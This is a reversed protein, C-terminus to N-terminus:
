GPQATGHRACLAMGARAQHEVAVPTHFVGSVGVARDHTALAEHLAHISGALHVVVGVHFREEMGQLALVDMALPEVGILLQPLSKSSVEGEVVVSADM